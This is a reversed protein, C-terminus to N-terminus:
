EADEVRVMRINSIGASMLMEYLGILDQLRASPSALILFRTREVSDDMEALSAPTILQGRLFAFGNSKLLVLNAAVKDISGTENSAM